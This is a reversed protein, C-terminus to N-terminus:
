PKGDDPEGMDIADLGEGVPDPASPRPKPKEDSAGALPMVISGPHKGADPWPTRLRREYEDKSIHYESFMRFPYGDFQSYGSNKKIHVWCEEDRASMEILDNVRLRPGLETRVTTRVGADDLAYSNMTYRTEGSLEQLLRRQAPDNVAFIQQFFTNEMIAGIIHTGIKELQSPTQNAIIIAINMSRAQAFFVDLDESALEQFEDIFLYVRHRKDPPCAAAATLLSHLAFKGVERHSASHLAGPLKFYVVQPRTLVDAMDIANDLVARRAESDLRDDDPTINLADISGLASLVALVDGADEKQKKTRFVAGSLQEAREALKRFSRTEPAAEFLRLLMERNARSFHSRGYPDGYELGLGKACLESRELPTKGALHSQLLPNFCYTSRGSQSTFWHFPLDFEAAGLRTAEFLAMDGKLDLVVVSSDPGIVQSILPTIGRSTKGAGTGGLIHVHETLIERHLLVPYDAERSYGLWLHQAELPDSSDRLRNTITEWPPLRGLYPSPKADFARYHHLVARGSVAVVVSVFVLPPVALSFLVGLFLAFGFPVFDVAMGRASLLPWVEPRTALPLLTKKRAELFEAKFAVQAVLDIYREREGDGLMSAYERTEPSLQSRTREITPASTGLRAMAVKENVAQWRAPGTFVMLIPFYSGLLVVGAALLAFTRGCARSRGVVGGAPSRFVGPAVIGAANYSFWSAAACKFARRVQQWQLGAQRRYRDINTYAFAAVVVVFVCLAFVGALVAIPTIVLVIFSLVLALVVVAFGQEFNAREPMERRSSNARIGQGVTRRPWAGCWRKIGGAVRHYLPLPRWVSRWAQSADKPVFLDAMLWTGFHWNFRECLRLTFLVGCAFLLFAPFPNTIHLVLIALPGSTAAIAARLYDARLVYLTAVVLGIAIVSLVVLPSAFWGFAAELSRLVFLLTLVLAPTALWAPRGGVDAFDPAYDLEMAAVTAPLSEVNLPDRTEQYNPVMGYEGLDDSRRWNKRLRRKEAPYMM